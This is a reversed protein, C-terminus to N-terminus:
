TTNIFFEMLILHRLLFKGNWMQSKDSIRDRSDGGGHTTDRQQGEHPALGESPHPVCHHSTDKGSHSNSLICRSVAPDRRESSPICMQKHACVWDEAPSSGALFPDKPVYLRGRM